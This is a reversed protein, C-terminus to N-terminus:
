AMEDNEMGGISAYVDCFKNMKSKGIQTLFLIKPNPPFSITGKDCLYHGDLSKGKADKGKFFYGNNTMSYQNVTLNVVRNVKNKADVPSLFVAVKIEPTTKYVKKTPKPTPASKDQNRLAPGIGQTDQESLVKKVIRNIDVETLNFKKKM